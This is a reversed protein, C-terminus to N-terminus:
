HSDVVNSDQCSQKKPARALMAYVVLDTQSRDISIDRLRDPVTQIIIWDDTAQGADIDNNNL